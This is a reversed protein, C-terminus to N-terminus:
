QSFILGTPLSHTFSQFSTNSSNASNDITYTLTSIAGPNITAPSFAMSFGPRTDDVTLIASSTGASGASTSLAGATNTHAGASSSTVDLQFSCSAGANLRYDSFSIADSGSTSSYSGNLCTNLLFDPSAITMGAPLTNTFSLGSVGTAQASNDITYTMTSVSGPGITTPSFSVSFIPTSLPAAHSLFNWMLCVALALAQFLSPIFSMKKNM